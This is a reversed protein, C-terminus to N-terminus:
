EPQPLEALKAVVVRLLGSIVMQVQLLELHIVIAQLFMTNLLLVTLPLGELKTEMPVKKLLGFIAM